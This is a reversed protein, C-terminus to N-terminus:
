IEAPIMFKSGHGNAIVCLDALDLRLNDLRHRAISYPSKGHCGLARLAKVMSLM